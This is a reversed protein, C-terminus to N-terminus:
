KGERVARLPPVLAVLALEAKKALGDASELMLLHSDELRNLRQHLHKATHERFFDYEEHIMARLDELEATVVEAM